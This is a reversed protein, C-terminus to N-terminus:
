TQPLFINRAPPEVSNSVADVAPRSGYQSPIGSIIKRPSANDDRELCEQFRMEHHTAPVRWFMPAKGVVQRLVWLAFNVKVPRAFARASNAFEVELASEYEM